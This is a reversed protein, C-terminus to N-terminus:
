SRLTIVTVEGRCNFRVPPVSVGLGSSTYGLMRGQHWLGVSGHRCRHLETFVPKGGPLCIQGGHTHGSLYLSYGAEDAYDAVEASHVLAIRCEGAHDHLATLAAETYFSHVDDLGTIRLRADGRQLVVSRNILVEFGRQELEIAMQASDHNGLVALRPGEVRASQLAQMLLDASVAASADEDGHTDGTVVLLDVEVGELLRDAAAALEPFNALHSDSIQLIRYGDFAAPLHPPSVEIDVRRLELANRRGWAYFPTLRLVAWFSLLLRSFVKKKWKRRPGRPSIWVGGEEISLRINKWDSTLHPGKDNM